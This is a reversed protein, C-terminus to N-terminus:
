NCLIKRRGPNKKEFKMVFSDIAFANGSALVSSSDDVDFGSSLLDLDTMGFFAEDLDRRRSGPFPLPPPPPPPHPLPHPLPHSIM